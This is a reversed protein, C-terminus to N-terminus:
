RSLERALREAFSPSYGKKGLDTKPMQIQIEFPLNIKYSNSHEANLRVKRHKSQNYPLTKDQIHRIRSRKVYDENYCVPILSSM